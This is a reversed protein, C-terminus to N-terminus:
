YRAKEAYFGNIVKKELFEELGHGGWERGNGSQKYGGFPSDFDQANGNLYVSGAKLRRAVRRARDWDQTHVYAGLGYPTDNAIEIAEDEDAFPIVCLVPGFIEERAITMQNNVGTFITPKVFYGTEHGEPKGPGGLALEAGEDIGVNILRQVKDFQTESVLPGIHSGAETPDGVEVGEGVRVATEVAQAYISEHVLMRTPANCSQGTNEFCHLVGKRVAGEVDADEFIVNPSKGGLEQLVRKVTDAADKAVAAGARTSGTLSVLDVDPHEALRAGVVPGEGHVMNFVGPPVGAEDAFEAFLHASLPSLESPKLVMTCGALLAPAVKCALQNIPWNWPIILGCVGIPELVVNGSRGSKEELSLNKLAAITAAFHGPGCAAQASHSLDHPAGMEAIIADVMEDYRRNFVAVIQEALEIREAVTTSSYSDFAARAAVVAHDIDAPSGLYIEAVTEETAPNIVPATTADGLPKTWQGDIYFSLLKDM